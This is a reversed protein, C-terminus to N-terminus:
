RRKSAFWYALKGRSSRFIQKKISRTFYWSFIFLAILLLVAAIFINIVKTLTISDLYSTLYGVSVIGIVRGADDVIPTKAAAASGRPRRQSHHHHIKRGTGGPQRRRGTPHRGVGSPRFPFLHVGQRDGIVIFSADSHAAIQQMFAQIAQPDHRSVQQRLNPMLAIEEAQIKARASMEQYLQRSADFYYYIGLAIFFSRSFAVLSIFLKYQFSLKM